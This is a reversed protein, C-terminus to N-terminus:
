VLLLVFKESAAVTGTTLPFKETVRGASQTNAMLPWCTGGAAGGSCHAIAVFPKISAQGPEAVLKVKIVEPPGSKNCVTPPRSGSSVSGM